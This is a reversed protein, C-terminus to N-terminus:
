GKFTLGDPRKGVTGGAGHKKEEYAPEKRKYPFILHSKL